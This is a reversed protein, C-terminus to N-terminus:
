NRVVKLSVTCREITVASDVNFRIIDGQTFATTWGTLVSDQYKDGSAITPKAAATISTAVTPYSAYSDNFIDITISGTINSLLSVQTITGSFPLELDIKEGALIASGGGDFVIEITSEKVADVYAKVAKETPLANDSDGALTGDISFENINTGNELTLGTADIFAREVGLTTIRVKDEDASQEVEVKTDADADVLTDLILESAGGASKIYSAILIDDTDPAVNFEIASGTLLYDKGSGEEQYLGNLFLSMSGTEPTNAVTYSTNVGNILGAPTETVADTGAVYELKGASQNYQLFYGDIPANNIQFKSEPITDDFIQTGRIKTNRDVM